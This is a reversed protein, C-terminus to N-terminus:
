SRLSSLVAAANIVRWGGNKWRKVGSVSPVFILQDVAEPLGSPLARASMHAGIGCIHNEGFPRDSWKAEGVLGCRGDVSAAVIDWESSSGRWWRSAPYWDKGKGSETALAAASRRCLDEWVRSVIGQKFSRWVALRASRTAGALFGRRPAVVRFWFAFFPDSIKYLARKCSKESEGFPIERVVIGLEQLRALPRALSTVPCGLRGAMESVRNSGGGIVDLLPRLSLASPTEELLLRDPETHLPGLPDLTLADVADDLAKGFPRALEWYWPIGGWVAYAEVVAVPDKCGLAEALWAPPLPNLAFAEIARGYLPSSADLVFGQMMRQSSGAIVALLGGSEKEHDIWNQFINPLSPDSMVLYPFEDFSLPERWGCARADSSLRRLLAGWDPYEV